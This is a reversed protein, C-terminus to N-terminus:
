KKKWFPADSVANKYFKLNIKYNWASQSETAKKCIDKEKLQTADRLGLKVM